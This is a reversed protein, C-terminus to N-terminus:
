SCHTVLRLRSIAAISLKGHSIPQRLILSGIAIVPPASSTIFLSHPLSTHHLGWIWFAFDLALVWGVLVIMHMNRMVKAQEGAFRIGLRLASNAEATDMATGTWQIASFLVFIVSSVPHLHRSSYDANAVQTHAAFSRQAALALRDGASLRVYQLSGPVLLLITTCQTRWAPLTLAPIEILTAFTPGASSIMLVQVLFNPM